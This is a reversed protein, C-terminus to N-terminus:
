GQTKRIYTGALHQTLALPVTPVNLRSKENEDWTLM